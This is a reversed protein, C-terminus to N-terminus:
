RIVGTTRVSATAARSPSRRHAVAVHVGDRDRPQAASAIDGPEGRRQQHGALQRQQAPSTAAVAVRPPREDAATSM